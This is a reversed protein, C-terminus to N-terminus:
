KDGEPSTVPLVDILNLTAAVMRNAKEASGEGYFSVSMEAHRESPDPHGSSKSALAGVLLLDRFETLWEHPNVASLAARASHLWCEKTHPTLLRWPKNREVYGLYAAEAAKEVQEDTPWTPTDAM